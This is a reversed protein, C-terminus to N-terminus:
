DLETNLYQISAVKKDKTIIVLKMKGQKYTRQTDKTASPKGYIQEIKDEADGISLGEKTSVSDDLLLIQSVYNVKKMQYTCIEFGSYTYTMDLDGFACSPAEFKSKPDGLKKIIEDSEAYVAIETGKADFIYGKDSSDGAGSQAASSSTSKNSVNGSINKEGGGCGALALSLAMASVLIAAIIKKKM